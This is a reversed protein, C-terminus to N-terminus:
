RCIRDPAPPAPVIVAGDPSPYRETRRPEDPREFSAGDPLYPNPRPKRRRTLKARIRQWWTPPVGRDPPPEYDPALKQLGTLSM